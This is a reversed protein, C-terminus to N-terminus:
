RSLTPCYIGPIYDSILIRSLFTQLHKCLVIVCSHRLSCEEDKPVSPDGRILRLSGLTLARTIDGFRLRDAGQFFDFRIINPNLLRSLFELTNQHKQVGSPLM